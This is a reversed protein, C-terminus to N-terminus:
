FRNMLILLRLMLDDQRTQRWVDSSLALRIRRFLFSKSGVFLDLVQRNSRPISDNFIDLLSLAQASMWQHGEGSGFFRRYKRALRTFGDNVGITNSGHQRYKLTTEADFIVEGFCSAVLYCWWDHIVVKKPLNNAILRVAERNLAMTCGAAISEVLANGFGIKGPVKTYGVHQLTEAVLEVRSCYMAPRDDAVESLKSVARAIKEPHWVDDQDCFAAYDTETSAAWKLLEFFSLAPGLNVHGELIEIRGKARESELIARTLDSSGDDRVLITVNPYTQGYFSDLQQQLYKSGNYTSLLVAVRSPKAIGSTM